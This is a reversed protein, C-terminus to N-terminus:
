SWWSLRINVVVFRDENCIYPVQTSIVYYFFSVQGSKREIMDPLVLKTLAVYSIFNLELLEKTQNLSTDVALSRQSRGANLVVSDVRGYKSIIASYAETMQAIDTVDLPLVMPKLGFDECEKAVDVLMNERRASIVVQAGSKVLDSGTVCCVCVCVCVCVLAINLSLYILWNRASLWKGHWHRGSAPVPELSGYLKEQSAKTRWSLLCLTFSFIVIM